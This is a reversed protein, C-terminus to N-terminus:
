KKLRWWVALVGIIGLVMGFGPAEPSAQATPTPVPTEAEMESEVSAEIIQVGSMPATWDLELRVADAGAGVFINVVKATFLPVESGDPNRGKYTISSGTEIRADELEKGQYSLSILVFGPVASKDVAKVSLNWGDKEWTGGVVLMKEESTRIETKIQPTTAVPSTSKDVTIVEGVIWYPGSCRESPLQTSYGKVVRGDPTEDAGGGVEIKDGVRAVPWGTANTVQFTGDEDASLSFGYPWVLLFGGARLCGDKIILEEPKDSLLAAMYSKAPEKQM